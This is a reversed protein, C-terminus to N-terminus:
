LYLRKAFIEVSDASGCLLAMAHRSLLRLEALTTELTQVTILQVLLQPYREALAQLQNAQIQLLNTNILLLQDN